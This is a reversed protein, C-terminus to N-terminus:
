MSKAFRLTKNLDAMLTTTAKNIDAALISITASLPPEGQTAPWQLAGIMGRVKSIEGSTLDRSKEEKPMTLPAIKRVYDGFSLSLGEATKELKGGCYVIAENDLSQWKGFDFAKRLQNIGTKFEVEKMDGAILLDDVHLILAGILKGQGNYYCYLCRDLPHRRWKLSM